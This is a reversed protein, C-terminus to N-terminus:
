RINNTAKAAAAQQARLRALEVADRRLNALETPTVSTKKLQENEARVTEEDQISIQLQACRERVDNMQHQQYALVACLSGVILVFVIFKFKIM